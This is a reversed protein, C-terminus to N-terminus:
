LILESILQLAQQQQAQTLPSLDEGFAFNEGPILIWWARPLHGYLTQSLTLLQAPHQQHTAWNSSTEPKLEVVRVEREGLAVDVFIVQAVQAIDVALEPTLQHQTITTVEPYERAAIAEVVKVGVGDDSRLTNGYGIVLTHAM